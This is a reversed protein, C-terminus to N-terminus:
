ASAPIWRLDHRPLELEGSPDPLAELRGQIGLAECGLEWNACWIGLAVAAYYRSSTVACFDVSELSGDESSLVARTTQGNYSSPSWQCAEFIRGFRAFQPEQLKAPLSLQADTFFLEALPLRTFTARNFLRLFAALYHSRYGVACTCIIQEREDDFRDGLHRKLSEHDAGPGIWCTGLGMRTADMVVKQLSRGVDIVSRRLYPRPAIAVLFERGNVVPWVRLRARIYELRVPTPGLRPSRLHREVAALLESRDAESMFRTQYSRCSRRSRMLDFLELEDKRPPRREPFRIQFKVTLLDFLAIALLSAAGLELAIAVRPLGLLQVLGGLAALLAMPGLPILYQLWGTFQLRMKARVLSAALRRLAKTPVRELLARENAGLGALIDDKNLKKIVEM